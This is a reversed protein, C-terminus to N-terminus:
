DSHLVKMSSNQQVTRGKSLHLRKNCTENILSENHSALIVIPIDAVFKKMHQSAKHQFNKDGVGLWEDLLLIDADLHTVISFALRAKMGTSYVRLPKHIADGLESFEVIQNVKQKMQRIPINFLLGRLLINEIGTAENNFGSTHKILSIIKGSASVKGESLPIGGGLVRLLTSKGAGNPGLLGMRDGTKLQFNIDDLLTVFSAKDELSGQMPARIGRSLINLLTNSRALSTSKPLRLSIREANLFHSSGLALIIGKKRYSSSRDHGPELECLGFDLLCGM